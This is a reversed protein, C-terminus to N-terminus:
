TEICFLTPNAKATMNMTFFSAKCNHLYSVELFTLVAWMEQFPLQVTVTLWMSIHLNIRVWKILWECSGSVVNILRTAFYRTVLLSIRLVICINSIWSHIVEYVSLSHSLLTFTFVTQKVRYLDAFQLAVLNWWSLFMLLVCRWWIEKRPIESQLFRM